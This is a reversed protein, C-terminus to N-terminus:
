NQLNLDQILTYTELTTSIQIIPVSSSTSGNFNEINITSLECHDINALRISPFDSQIVESFTLNQLMIKRMGTFDIFITIPINNRHVSNLYKVEDISTAQVVLPSVLPIEYDNFQHNSIYIQMPRYHPVSYFLALTNMRIGINMNGKLGYIGHDLTSTKILGDDPLCFPFTIEIVTATVVLISAHSSAVNYNTLTM